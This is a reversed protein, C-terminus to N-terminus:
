TMKGKAQDVLMHKVCSQHMPRLAYKSRRCEVTKRQVRTCGAHCLHKCVLAVRMVCTDRSVHRLDPLINGRSREQMVYLLRMSRLTVAQLCAVWHGHVSTEEELNSFRSM